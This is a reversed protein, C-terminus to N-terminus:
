ISFLIKLDHQKAQRRKHYHLNIGAREAFTSVRDNGHFRANGGHADIQYKVVKQDIAFKAKRDEANLAGRDSRDKGTIHLHRDDQDVRVSM